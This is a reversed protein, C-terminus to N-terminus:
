GAFLLGDFVETDAVLVGNNEVESFEEFYAWGSTGDACVIQVWHETDTLPLSLPQDSPQLTLQEASKDPQAYVTLPQKLTVPEEWYSIPEVFEGKVLEMKGNNLRYTVVGGWTQMVNLSRYASVSGDGHYVTRGDEPFGTITDLYTLEGEDYRFLHTMRWDDMGWDPIALEVLSDSTDLDVLYYNDVDPNEVWLQFSDFPYDEEGDGTNLFERDNIQLSVPRGETWSGDPEERAPNVAYYIQDAEGDGDLDWRTEANVSVAQSLGNAAVPGFARQTALIRLQGVNDEAPDDTFSNRSCVCYVYRGAKLEVTVEGLLDSVVPRFAQGLFRWADTFEQDLAYVTWQISSPDYLELEYSPDTAAFRYVGDTEPRFLCPGDYADQNHFVAVETEEGAPQAETQQESAEQGSATEEGPAPAEAAEEESSASAETVAATKGSEQGASQETSGAGCAALSLALSLALLLAIIRKM